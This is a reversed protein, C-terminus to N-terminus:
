LLEWRVWFCDAGGSCDAAAVGHLWSCFLSILFPAPWSLISLARVSAFSPFSVLFLFFSFFSTADAV